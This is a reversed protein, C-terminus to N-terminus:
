REGALVQEVDRGCFEADVAKLQPSDVEEVTLFYWVDPRYRGKAGVHNEVGAVVLPQQVLRQAVRAKIAPLLFRSLQASLPTQNSGADAIKQFLATKPGVFLGGHLDIRRTGYPHKRPAGREPLPDFRDKRLDGRVLQIDRRLLDFHYV